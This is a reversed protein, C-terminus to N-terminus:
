IKINVMRWLWFMGLVYLVAPISLGIIQLPDSGNETYYPPNLFSITVVLIFPLLGVILASFRGEASVAKIKKRMGIRARIVSTLNNLIEVLNGGTERQVELASNFFRLDPNPFRQAINSLAINRDLGYNMEDIAIGFETGIPDPMERSVMELAVPAPHGAQLGRSVLDIAPCLQEAFLKQRHSAKMRIWLYPIFFGLFMSSLLIIFNNVASTFSLLFFLLITIMSCLMLFGSTTLRLNAAWLTKSLGPVMAAFRQNLRSGTQRRLLLIGATSDGTKHIMKMRQNAAQDDKTTSSLMFFLGEVLLIVTTFIVAYLIYLGYTGM